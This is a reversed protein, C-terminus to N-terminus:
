SARKAQPLLTNRKRKHESKARLAFLSCMSIHSSNIASAILGAVFFGPLGVRIV